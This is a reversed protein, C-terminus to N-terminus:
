EVLIWSGLVIIRSMLEISGPEQSKGTNLIEVRLPHGSQAVAVLKLAIYFQSRGFYGLRTAGCLEMIQFLVCVFKFYSSSSLPLKM